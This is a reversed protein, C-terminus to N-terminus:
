PFTKPGECEIPLCLASPRALLQHAPHPTRPESFPISFSLYSSPSKMEHNLQGYRNGKL